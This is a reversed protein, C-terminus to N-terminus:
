PKGVGWLARIISFIAGMIAVIIFIWLFWPLVQIVIGLLLGIVIGGLGGLLTGGVGYAIAGGIGGELFGRVIGVLLGVVAGLAAGWYMLPVYPEEIFEGLTDLFRKAV